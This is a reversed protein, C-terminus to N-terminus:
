WVSTRYGNFVLEVERTEEAGTVVMRSETEIFKGIRPKM